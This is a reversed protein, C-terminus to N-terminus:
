IVLADIGGTGGGGPQLEPDLLSDAAGRRRRRIRKGRYSEDTNADSADVRLCPM